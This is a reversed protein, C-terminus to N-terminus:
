APMALKINYIIQIFFTIKYINIHCCLKLVFACKKYLCCKILLALSFNAFFKAFALCCGSVSNESNSFLESEEYVNDDLFLPLCELFHAFVLRTQKSSAISNIAIFILNFIFFLDCLYSIFLSLGLCPGLYVLIRRLM